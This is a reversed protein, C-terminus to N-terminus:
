NMKHFIMAEETALRVDADTYNKEILRNIVNHHLTSLEKLEESHNEACLQKLESLHEQLGTKDQQLMDALCLGFLVLLLIYEKEGPRLRNDTKCQEYMKSFLEHTSAPSQGNKLESYMSKINM